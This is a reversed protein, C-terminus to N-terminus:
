GEEIGLMNNLNRVIEVLEKRIVYENKKNEINELPWGIYRMFSDIAPPLKSWFHWITYNDFFEVKVTARTGFMAKLAYLLRQTDRISEHQAYQSFSAQYLKDGKNIMLKYDYAGFSLIRRAMFPEQSEKPINSVWCNSFVQGKHIDFYEYNNVDVIEQWKIQELYKRLFSEYDSRDINFRDLLHYFYETEIINSFYCAGSTLYGPMKGTKSLNSASLAIQSQYGVDIIIGAKLLPERILNIPDTEENPYFWDKLEPKAIIYSDLVRRAERHVKAKSNYSVDKNESHLNSAIITFFWKVLASYVLRAEFNKEDENQYRLIGLSSGIINFIDGMRTSEL